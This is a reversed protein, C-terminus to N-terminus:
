RGWSFRHTVAFLLVASNRTSTGVTSPTPRLITDDSVALIFKTRPRWLYILAVQGGASYYDGISANTVPQGPLPRRGFANLAFKRDAWGARGELAVFWRRGILPFLTDLAVDGSWGDYGDVAKRVRVDLEAYTLDVKTFGGIEVADTTRAARPPLRDNYAQRYELDPGLRVRDWRLATYQIGDDLSFHLDPGWQGDIVPVVDAQYTNSGLHVPRGRVAVGIDANLGTQPLLILSQASPAPLISTQDSAAGPTAAGEAHALAPLALIAAAAMAACRTPNSRPGPRAM